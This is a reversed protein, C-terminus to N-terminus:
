GRKIALTLANLGDKNKHMLLSGGKSMSILQQEIRPLELQNSRMQLIALHLPTNGKSNELTDAETKFLFPGFKNM